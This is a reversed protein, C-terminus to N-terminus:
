RSRRRSGPSRPPPPIKAARPAPSYPPYYAPPGYYYPRYYYPYAAVARFPATAIAGATYVAAGAICVPWFLPFPHCPPPYYAQAKANSLPLVALLAALAAPVAIRHLM